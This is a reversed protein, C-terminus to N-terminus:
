RESCMVLANSRPFRTPRKASNSSRDKRKQAEILLYQRLLNASMAFAVVELALALAHTALIVAESYNCDKGQAFVIDAAGTWGEDCECTYRAESARGGVAVPTGHGSCPVTAPWNVHLGPWSDM